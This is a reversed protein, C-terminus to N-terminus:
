NGLAELITTTKKGMYSAVNTREKPFTTGTYEFQDVISYLYEPKLCDDDLANKM